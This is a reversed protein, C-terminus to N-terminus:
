PLPVRVISIYNYICNNIRSMGTKHIIATRDDRGGAHLEKEKVDVNVEPLVNPPDTCTINHM